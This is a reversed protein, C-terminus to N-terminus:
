CQTLAHVCRVNFLTDVFQPRICSLILSMCIGHVINHVFGVFVQVPATSLSCCDLFDMICLKRRCCAERPLDKTGWTSSNGVRGERRLMDAVAKIHIKEKTKFPILAFLFFEIILPHFYQDLFSKLAQRNKM